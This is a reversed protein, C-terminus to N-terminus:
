VIYDWESGSAILDGRGDRNTLCVEANDKWRHM